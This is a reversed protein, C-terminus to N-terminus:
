AVVSPELKAIPETLRLAVFEQLKITALQASHPPVRRFQSSLSNGLGM